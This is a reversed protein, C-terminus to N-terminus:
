VKQLQQKMYKPIEFLLEECYDLKSLIFSEALQKHVPIPTYRKINCLINLTAYSNKTTELLFKQCKNDWSVQIQKCKRDLTKGKCNLTVVDQEFGNLTEIQSTTFLIQKRKQQM